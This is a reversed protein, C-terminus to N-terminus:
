LGVPNGPPDIQGGSQGGTTEGSPEPFLAGAMVAAARSRRVRETHVYTDSTVRESSHGLIESIVKMPVDQGFLISAATHRLEHTRWRGLGAATTPEAFRHRYNDPDVPTGLPMTFVLGDRDRWDPGASLREAAQTARWSRLQAVIPGPVDLDRRSQRTKLETLALGAGVHRQLQRRVRVCPQEDLEVDEWRLGLVEGRRLGLALQLAFAVGLRARSLRGRVM